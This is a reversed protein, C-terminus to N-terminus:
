KSCNDDYWESFKYKPNLTKNVNEKECLTAKAKDRSNDLKEMHEKQLKGDPDQQNNFWNGDYKVTTRDKLIGKGQLTGYFFNGELEDENVLTLKGEGHFKNQRFFGNYSAVQLPVVKSDLDAQTSLGNYQSRFCPDKLDIM